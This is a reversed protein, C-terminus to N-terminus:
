KEAVGEEGREPGGGAAGGAGERVRSGCTCSPEERGGFWKVRRGLEM